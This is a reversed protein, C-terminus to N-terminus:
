LFFEICRMKKLYPNEFDNIFQTIKKIKEDYDMDNTYVSNISRDKFSMLEKILESKKNELEDIDIRSLYQQMKNLNESFKAPAGFFLHRLPSDLVMKSHPGAFPKQEFFLVIQEFLNGESIAKAMNENNFNEKIIPLYDDLGDLIKSSVKLINIEISKVLSPYGTDILIKLLLTKEFDNLHELYEIIFERSKLMGVIKNMEFYLKASTIFDKRDHSFKSILKEPFDKRPLPRKEYDELIEEVTYKDLAETLLEETFTWSYLAHVVKDKKTRYKYNDELESLHTSYHEPYFGPSVENVKQKFLWWSQAAEDKFKDHDAFYGVFKPHNLGYIKEIYKKLYVDLSYDDGYVSTPATNPDFKSKTSKGKNFNDVVKVLLGWPLSRMTLVHTKFTDIEWYPIRQYVTPHYFGGSRYSLFNRHDSYSSNSYYYKIGSELASPSLYPIHKKFSDFVLKFFMGSDDLMTRRFVKNFTDFDIKYVTQIKKSNFFIRWMIESQNQWNLDFLSESGHFEKLLEESKIYGQLKVEIFSQNVKLEKSLLRAFESLPPNFSLGNALAFIPCILLYVM